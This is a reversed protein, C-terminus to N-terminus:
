TGLDWFIPTRPRTAGETANQKSAMARALKVSKSKAKGYPYSDSILRCIVETLLVLM